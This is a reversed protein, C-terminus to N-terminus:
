KPCKDFLHITVLTKTESRKLKKSHTKLTNQLLKCDSLCKNLISFRGKKETELDRRKLQHADILRTNQFKNPEM